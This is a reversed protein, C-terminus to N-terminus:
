GERWSAPNDGLWTRPIPNSSRGPPCPRRSTGTTKAAPIEQIEFHWLHDAVFVIDLFVFGILRLRATLIVLANRLGLDVCFVGPDYRGDVISFIGLAYPRLLMTPTLRHLREKPEEMARLHCLFAGFGLIM